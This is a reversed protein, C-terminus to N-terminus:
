SWTATIYNCIRWRSCLSTESSSLTNGRNTYQAELKLGWREKSWTLSERLNTAECHAQCLMFCWGGEPEPKLVAAQLARLCKVAQFSKFCAHGSQWCREILIEWVNFCTWRQPATLKSWTCISKLSSCSERNQQIHLTGELLGKETFWDYQIM